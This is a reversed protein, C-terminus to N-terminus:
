GLRARADQIAKRIVFSREAPPDSAKVLARLDELTEDDGKFTITKMLPRSENLRPKGKKKAVSM